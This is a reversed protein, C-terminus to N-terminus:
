RGRKKSPSPRVPFSLEDRIGMLWAVRDRHRSAVRYVVDAAATTSPLAAWPRFLWGGPLADILVLAADGGSVVRGTAENVVHIADALHGQAALRELIPHGSSAATELAVFGLRSDHDWRRLHRVTECCVGCGADYLVTLSATARDPAATTPHFPAEIAM